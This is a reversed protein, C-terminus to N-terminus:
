QLYVLWAWLGVLLWAVAAAARLPVAAAPKWRRAIGIVLEQAALLGLLLWTVKHRYYTLERFGPYRSAAQEYADTVRRRDAAAPPASGLTLTAERAAPGSVLLRDGARRITRANGDQGVVVTWNDATPTGAGLVASADAAAGVSLVTIVTAPARHRVEISPAAVPWASAVVWGAFPRLVGTHVVPAVGTGFVGIRARGSTGSGVIAFAHTGVPQVRSGPMTTWLTDVEVDSPGTASDAIIWTDGDLAVIQRRLEVGGEARRQLEIGQVGAAEGVRALTTAGPPARREGRVHPANSGRWGNADDYGDVGYPWYGTNTIWNRGGSWVLVSMDDALKHARSPFSSWTVVTQSLRAADPWAGLGHWWVAYGAAAFLNVARAPPRSADVAEDPPLPAHDTNGFAPVTRDPRTLV